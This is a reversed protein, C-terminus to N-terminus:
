KEIKKNYFIFQFSCHAQKTQRQIKTDASVDQEQHCPQFLVAHLLPHLCEDDEFPCCCRWCSFAGSGM